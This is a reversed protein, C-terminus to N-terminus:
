IAGPATKPKRTTFRKVGRPPADLKLSVQQHDGIEPDEGPGEVIQNVIFDAPSQALVKIETGDILEKPWQHPVRNIILEFSHMPKSETNM